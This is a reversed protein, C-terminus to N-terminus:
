VLKNLFNSFKLMYERLYFTALEPSTAKANLESVHTKLTADIVIKHNEIVAPHLKSFNSVIRAAYRQFNQTM